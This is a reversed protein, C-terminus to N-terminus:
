GSLLTRAFYPVMREMEWRLEMQPLIARQYVSAYYLGALTRSLAWAEELRGRPLVAEWPKLYAAVLAEYAEPSGLAAPLEMLFSALSFLPNALAADSWDLFAIRENDALIQWAGFDGHELAPPIDLALLHSCQEHLLSARSRLRTLEASPLGGPLDVLLANEDALLSDFSACLWAGSRDPLGLAKLNAAYPVTSVQLEAYQRLAEAWRHLNPRVDLPEGAVEHMLLWGREPLTSHITSTIAPFRQALWTSLALEHAFMPPVAKLFFRQQGITARVIASRQWSRLQEVAVLPGFEHTLWARVQAMWGCEYWPVRQPDDGRQWDLWADVVAREANPLHMLAADRALWRIGNPLTPPLAALELLYSKTQIQAAPDIEWALCRRTTVHLGLQARALENVHAVSQWFNTDDQAITPLSLTTHSHSVLLEEAFPHPVLLLYRTQM